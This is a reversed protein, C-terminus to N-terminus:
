NSGWILRALYQLGQRLAPSHGESLVDEMFALFAGLFVLAKADQPIDRTVMAGPLKDRNYYFLPHLETTFDDKLVYLQSELNSFQIHGREQAM